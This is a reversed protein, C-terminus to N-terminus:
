ASRGSSRRSTPRPRPSSWRASPSPPRARTKSTSASTAPTKQLPLLSPPLSLSPSPPLPLPSRRSPRTNPPRCFLGIAPPQLPLAARAIFILKRQSRWTRTESGRIRGEQRHDCCCSVPPVIQAGPAPLLPATAKVSAAAIFFVLTSKKWRRADIRERLKKPAEPRTWHREPVAKRTGVPSSARLLCGDLLALTSASPRPPFALDAFSRM